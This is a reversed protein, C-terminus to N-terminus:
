PGGYGTFAPLVRPSALAIWDATAMRVSVRDSAAAFAIEPRAAIDDGVVLAAEFLPRGFPPVEGPRLGTVTALETETAFRYRQVGLARRLARGEVRRDSGVVVLVFGLREVSFLISKGGIDLPTGRAEAAETATRAPPHHLVEHPRGSTALLALLREHPTM